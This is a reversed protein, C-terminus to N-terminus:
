AAAANREAAANGDPAAENDNEAPGATAELEAELEALANRKEDLLAQDRFP